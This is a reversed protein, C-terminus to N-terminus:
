DHSSESKSFWMQINPWVNCLVISQSSIECFFVRINNNNTYYIFIYICLSGYQVYVSYCAPRNRYLFQHSIVLLLTVSFLLFKIMFYSFLFEAYMCLTITTTTINSLTGTYYSIHRDWKCLQMMLLYQSFLNTGLYRAVIPM